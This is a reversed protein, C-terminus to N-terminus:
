MKSSYLAPPCATFPNTEHPKLIETKNNEPTNQATFSFEELM